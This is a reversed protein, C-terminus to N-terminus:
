ESGQQPWQKMFARERARSMRVDHKESSYRVELRHDQGGVDRGVGWHGQGVQRFLYSIWSTIMLSVIVISIVSIVVIIIVIM